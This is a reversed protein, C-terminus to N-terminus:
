ACCTLTRCASPSIAQRKARRRISRCLRMRHAPFTSWARTPGEVTPGIVLVENLPTKFLNVRWCKLTHGQSNPKAANECLQMLAAHGADSVKERLRAIWAQVRLEDQSAQISLRQIWASAPGDYLASLHTQYHRGLDLDRCIKVFGGATLGAVPGTVPSADTKSRQLTSFPGAEDASEFNHLAAELLSLRRPKGEPDREYRATDTQAAVAATTETLVEIIQRFPQFHYQAQDVPQDIGLRAELLPKCFDTIGKLPKLADQLTRRSADRRDIATNLAQQDEASAKTYWAHASGDAQLYDKRLRSLLDPM